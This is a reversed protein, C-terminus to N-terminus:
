FVPRVSTNLVALKGDSEIFSFAYYEQGPEYLVLVNVTNPVPLGEKVGVRTWGPGLLDGIREISQDVHPRIMPAPFFQRLKQKLDDTHEAYTPM